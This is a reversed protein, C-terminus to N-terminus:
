IKIYFFIYLFKKSDYLNNLVLSKKFINYKYKKIKISKYEYIM